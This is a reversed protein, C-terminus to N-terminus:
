DNNLLLCVHYKKVSMSLDVLSFVLRNRSSNPFRSTSSSEKVSFFVHKYSALDSLKETDPWSNEIIFLPVSWSFSHILKDHCERNGMSKSSHLASKRQFASYYNRISETSHNKNIHLCTIYFLIMLQFIYYTEM